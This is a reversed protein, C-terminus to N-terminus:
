KLVNDKVWDLDNGKIHKIVDQMDKTIQDKSKMNQLIVSIRENIEKINYDNPEIIHNLYDNLKLDGKRILDVVLPYLKVKNEELIIEHMECRQGKLDFAFKTYIKDAFYFFLLNHDLLYNVHCNKQELNQLKNELFSHLYNTQVDYRMLIIYFKYMKQIIEYIRNGQFKQHVGVPNRVIDDLVGQSECLMKFLNNISSKFIEPNVNAGYFKVITSDQGGAISLFYNMLRQKLSYFNSNLDPINNILLNMWIDIRYVYIKKQAEQYELINSLCDFLKELVFFVKNKQELKIINKLYLLKNYNGLCELIVYMQFFLTHKKSYNINLEFNFFYKLIPNFEDLNNKTLELLFDSINVFIKSIHDWLSNHFFNYASFFLCDRYFEWFKSFFKDTPKEMVEKEILQIFLSKFKKNRTFIIKLLCLLDFYEEKLFVFNANKKYKKFDLELTCKQFEEICFILMNTMSENDDINTIYMIKSIIDELNENFNSKLPTNVFKKRRYCKIFSLYEPREDYLKDIYSIINFFIKKIKTFNTYATETKQLIDYITKDENVEGEFLLQNLNSEDSEGNILRVVIKSFRDIIDIIDSEYEFKKHSENMFVFAYTFKYLSPFAVEFLYSILEEEGFTSLEEFDLQQKYFNMLFKYDEKKVPFPDEMLIFDKSKNYKLRETLINNPPLVCCNDVFTIIERYLPSGFKICFYEEPKEIKHYLKDVKFTNKLAANYLKLLLYTEKTRVAKLKETLNGEYLVCIKKFPLDIDAQTKDIFDPKTIIGNLLPIFNQNIIHVLKMKMEMYQLDVELENCHNFYKIFLEIISIFIEHSASIEDEEDESELFITKMQDFINNLVNVLHNTFYNNVKLDNSTILKSITYLNKFPEIEFFDKIITKFYDSGLLEPYTQCFKNLVSFTLDIIVEAEEEFEVRMIDVIPVIRRLMKSELIIELPVTKEKFVKFIMKMMDLFSYLFNTRGETDVELGTNKIYDLMDQQMNVIDNFATRIDAEIVVTTDIEEEEFNASNLYYLVQKLNNQKRLNKGKIKTSNFIYRTIILNFYFRVTELKQRTVNRDVLLQYSHIIILTLFERAKSFGDILEENFNAALKESDRASNKELSVLVESIEYLKLFLGELDEIQWYGQEFLLVIIELTLYYVFHSAGIWRWGVRPYYNDLLFFIFGKLSFEDQEYTEILQKRNCDRLYNRTKATFDFGSDYKVRCNFVFDSELYLDKFCLLLNTKFRLSEDYVRNGFAMNLNKFYLMILEPPFVKKFYKNLGFNKDIEKNFLLHFNKLFEKISNFNLQDTEAEHMWDFEGNEMLVRHRKFVQIREDEDLIKQVNESLIKEKKSIYLSKKEEVIHNLQDFM